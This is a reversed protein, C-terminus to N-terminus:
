HIKLENDCCRQHQDVICDTIAPALHHAVLHGRARQSSDSDEAREGVKGGGAQRLVFDM